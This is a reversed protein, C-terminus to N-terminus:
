IHDTIHIENLIYEYLGIDFLSNIQLVYASPLIIEEIYKLKPPLCGPCIDRLDNLFWQEKM